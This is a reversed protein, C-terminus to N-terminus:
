LDIRIICRWISGDIKKGCCPLSRSLEWTMCLLISMLKEDGRQVLDMWGGPSRSVYRTITYNVRSKWALQLTVNLALTTSVYCTSDVWHHIDAKFDVFAGASAWTWHCGPITGSDFCRVTIVSEDSTQVPIYECLHEGSDYKMKEGNDQREGRAWAQSNGPGNYIFKSM